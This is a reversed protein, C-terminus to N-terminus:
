FGSEVLWLKYLFLLIEGSTPGYPCTKGWYAALGINHDLFSSKIISM